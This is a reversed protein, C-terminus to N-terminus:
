IVYTNSLGARTKDYIVQGVAMGVAARTTGLGIAFRQQFFRARRILSTSIGQSERWVNKLIAATTPTKEYHPTAYKMNRAYNFPSAAIIAILAAICNCFFSFTEQNYANNTLPFASKVRSRLVEYVCGYTIDRLVTASTGKVFPRIGGQQWMERVSSFFSRDEQGWTHYKVAAVNNTLVGCVLGSSSGVCFQAASESLGHDCFWPYANIKMESQMVYYIGGTYARQVVSQTVGHYPATFNENLFFSRKNKMSLWLARDVPNFLFAGVIGTWIGAVIDISIQQQPSLKKQNADPM